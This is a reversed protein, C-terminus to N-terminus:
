APDGELLTGSGSFVLGSATSVTVVLTEGETLVFWMERDAAAAEAGPALSRLATIRTGSGAGVSLTYTATTGGFISVATLYKLIATRDAPVTYLTFTGTSALVPGFLRRTRVPM